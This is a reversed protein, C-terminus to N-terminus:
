RRWEDPNRRMWTLLEEGEAPDRGPGTLLDVALQPPSVCVLQDRRSTREFVVDDYPALLWVNAGADTPTLKLQKALADVDDTYIAALRTPAVPSFRQAAFSGTAAYGTAKELKAALATLGRPELYTSVQNSSTIDYDEAWRQIVGEWDLATVPGRSDRTLLGEKDLLEITRSLSGLPVGAKEALERVGYPPAFDLLARVVRASGRGKLSRLTDDTPWPDKSAGDQRIYLAPRRCRLLANGTLDFYGAGAEAIQRRATPSLYPAAVVLAPDTADAADAVARLQQVAATVGGAFRNAKVEILVTARAGDPATVSLKLDYRRDRARGERQSTIKWDSPLIARLGAEVQRTLQASTLQREALM